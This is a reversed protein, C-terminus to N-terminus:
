PPPIDRLKTLKRYVEKLEPYILGYVKVYNQYYKHQKFRPQVMDITKVFEQSIKQMDKFIGVAKGGLIAAGLTTLDRRNLRFYPIGIVDAKIQNWLNSSAGGGLVIVKNFEIHPYNAKTINLSHTNEYAISELIARYFHEKSHTWSFGIYLGRVDTDSPTARGSLHPVFLLSESGPPIQSAKKDLIEYVNIGTKKAEDKDDKCFTDIFWRHTLGGGIIYSSVLWLGEIASPNCELTKYEIDPVFKDVCAMFGPYTAANDVISGVINAGSGLFDCTKDYAGAIVPIGEILGCDDAAKRTLTGVIDTPNVIKPLKDIDIKLANSIEYSWNHRITDALGSLAPSSNEWFANDAKAGVLKGQVYQTVMMFKKSKKYIDPYENKLWLIKNAGMPSGTGSKLRILDGHTKMMDSFYSQDRSDIPNTYESTPNWNKDVGIIGGGMGTFSIAAIDRPNLKSNNISLKISETVLQYFEDGQYVLAGPGLTHIITDQNVISLSIGQANYIATKISQSGLDCAVIHTKSM